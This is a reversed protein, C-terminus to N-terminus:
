PRKCRTRRHMQRPLSRQSHRARAVAARSRRDAVSGESRVGRCTLTLVTVLPPLVAVKIMCPRYRQRCLRVTMIYSLFRTMAYLKLSSLARFPCTNALAAPAEVCVRSAARGWRFSCPCQTSLPMSANWRWSLLNSILRGLPAPMGIRQRFIRRARESDARATERLINRAAYLCPMSSPLMRGDM